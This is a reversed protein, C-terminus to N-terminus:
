ATNVLLCTAVFFCTSNSTDYSLAISHGVCFESSTTIANTALYGAWDINFYSLSPDYAFRSILLGFGSGGVLYIKSPDFYALANGNVYFTSTSVPPGYAIM